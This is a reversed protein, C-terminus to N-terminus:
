KLGSVIERFEDFIEDQLYDRFEGADFYAGRCRPCSEFRIEFPDHQLVHDMKVSCRPCSTDLIENFRAGVLEDGIDFQEAERINEFDDMTLRDFFLGYCEQCRNISISGDAFSEMASLCKPCKM